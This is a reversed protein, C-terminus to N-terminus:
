RAEQPTLVRRWVEARVASVFAAIQEDIVPQEIGRRRLVIAQRDASFALHREAQDPARKLMGAAVAEVLDRRRATPFPVILAIM